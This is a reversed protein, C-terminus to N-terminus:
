VVRFEHFASAASGDQAEAADAMAFSAEAIHNTDSHLQEARTTLNTIAATLTTIFDAITSDTPLAQEAPRSFQSAQSLDKALVRTYEPDIVFTSLPNM